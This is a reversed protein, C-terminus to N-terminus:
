PSKLLSAIIPCSCSIALLKLLYKKLTRVSSYNKACRCLFNSSGSECRLTTCCLCLIFCSLVIISKELRRVLKVEVIHECSNVRGHAFDSKLM